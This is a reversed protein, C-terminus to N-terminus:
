QLILKSYFIEDGSKTVVQYMGAPLHKLNLMREGAAMKSKQILQGSLSYVYLTVDGALKIQVTGSSPNPYLLVTNNEEPADPEVASLEDYYFYKKSELMWEDTNVNYWYEAESDLYEDTVYQYETKRRDWIGEGVSASVEKLTVRMEEDYGYADVQLLVWEEKEFDYNSSSVIVVKNFDTYAYVIRSQAIFGNIGDAVYTTENTVLHNHYQYEKMGSLIEEGSDLIYSVIRYLDGSPLYQYQDLLEFHVEFFEYSSKTEILQNLENYQNWAAFARSWNKDEVSWEYVFFSDVLELSNEKPYFRIRSTPKYIGAEDDYNEALTEEMRGLDDTKLTTRRMAIWQDPEYFYEEVVQVTPEPYRYINRLTPISDNPNIGYGFYTITSDLQLEESRNNDPRIIDFDEKPGPVEFGAANLMSKVEYSWNVAYPQISLPLQNQAFIHSIAMTWSLVPLLLFKM